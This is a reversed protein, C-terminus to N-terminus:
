GKDNEDLPAGIEQTNEPTELTNEPTEPSIEAAEEELTTEIIKYELTFFMQFVGWPILKHGTANGFEDFDYKAIIEKAYLGHFEHMVQMVTPIKASELKFIYKAGEIGITENISPKTIVVDVGVGFRTILKHRVTNDWGIRYVVVTFTRMSYNKETSVEPISPDADGFTALQTDKSVDPVPAITEAVQKEQNHRILNDNEDIIFGRDKLVKQFSSPLDTFYTVPIGEFRLESIIIYDDFKHKDILAQIRHQLEVTTDFYYPAHDSGDMLSHLKNGMADNIRAIEARGTPVLAVHNGRINSVELTDMDIECDYSCSLERLEGSLIKEIAQKDNIVLTAVIVNYGNVKSPGVMVDKIFGISIDKINDLNVTRHLDPVYILPKGEFSAIAQADSVAKWPRTVVVEYDNESPDWRPLDSRLYRQEGNRAIIANKCILQGIDDKYKNDSIQVAVYETM